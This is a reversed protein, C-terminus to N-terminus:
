GRVNPQGDGPGHRHSPRPDHASLNPKPATGIAVATASTIDFRGLASPTGSLTGNNFTLGDPL